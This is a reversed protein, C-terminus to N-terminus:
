IKNIDIEQNYYNEKLDVLKQPLPKNHNEFQLYHLICIKDNKKCNLQCHKCADHNYKHEVITAYAMIQKNTLDKIKM